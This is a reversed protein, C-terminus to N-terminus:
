KLRIWCGVEAACGRVDRTIEAGSFRMVCIGQAACFRDRRKDREVQEKTISHFQAGDCEVVLQRDDETLLIDARYPGIEAQTQVDTLYGNFSVWDQIAGVLDKEIPSETRLQTRYYIPHPAARRSGRARHFAKREKGSKGICRQGAAAECLPCQIDLPHRM